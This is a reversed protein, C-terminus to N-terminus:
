GRRADPMPEVPRADITDLGLVQTLRARARSVRSKVTGVACGCVRAAEDHTFGAVGVLVLAERQNRPLTGLVVRFERLASAHEQAPAELLKDAAAEDVDEVERRRKRLDSIRTNRLITSLWARLRTDPRYSARAAWAKTLTDQVLDQAHAENRTLARALMRLAPTEEMLLTQFPHRGDGPGKTARAGEQGCSPAAAASAGGTATRPSVGAIQGGGLTSRRGSPGTGMTRRGEAAPGKRDSQDLMGEGM